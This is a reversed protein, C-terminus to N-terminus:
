HSHPHVVKKDFNTSGPDPTDPVGRAYVLDMATNHGREFLAWTEETSLVWQTIRSPAATCEADHDTATLRQHTYMSDQSVDTRRRFRTVEASPPPDLWDQNTHLAMDENNEEGTQTSYLTERSGQSIEPYLGADATVM